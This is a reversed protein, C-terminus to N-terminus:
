KKRLRLPHNLLGLGSVLNYRLHWQNRAVEIERFAKKHKKELARMKNWLAVEEAVLIEAQVVRIDGISAVVPKSKTKM